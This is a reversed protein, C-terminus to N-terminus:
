RACSRLFRVAGRLGPPLPLAHGEADLAATEAGALAAAAEDTLRM